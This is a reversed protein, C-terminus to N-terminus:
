GVTSLFAVAERLLDSPAASEMSDLGPVVELIAPGEYAVERLISQVGPWDVRGRGPVTHDDNTGMTDHLHLHVLRSSYREVYARV